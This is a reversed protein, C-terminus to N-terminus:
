SREMNVSFSSISAIRSFGARMMPRTVNSGFHDAISPNMAVSISSRVHKTLQRHVVIRIHPLDHRHSAYGRFVHLDSKSLIRAFLHLVAEGEQILADDM